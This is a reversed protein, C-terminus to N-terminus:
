RGTANHENRGRVCKNFRQIGQIKGIHLLGQAVRIRETIHNVLGRGIQTFNDPFHKM